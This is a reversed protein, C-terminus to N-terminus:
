DDDIGLMIKQHSKKLTSFLNMLEDKNENIAQFEMKGALSSLVPYGFNGGTGKLQHLIDSLNEWDNEQISQEIAKVTDALKHVYRKILDIAEPDEDLLSSVVPVEEMAEPIKAELYAGLTEFLKASDIPKTLFDDCGVQYCAERDEQMANATLAIIPKKFDKQRLIKVAELGGMIPMRMDMLVLDFDNKESEEIALKGNEAITVTLGMRKLYILLLEQNDVNDEALLINGSLSQTLIAQPKTQQLHPLHEKDFVKGAGELAEFTLLFTFKSGKGLESEVTLSGGLSEALLKSLSLGLGTGGFKRTTSSDAQTYAQFILDQQEPSIGIGSDVVEFKVEPDDENCNCSVNILVSGKETFKISNNCLNILIQKLRLPDNKIKEPLPFIYNISFGLGKEEAATRVLREVDTLIEFPSLEVSEIELKHAEVKSLDLIDNIIQLLHKGSRIITQIAKQRQVMTQESFLTTEAFGIMATLPTRIEHSMTALFESKIETAEEAKKFAIEMDDRAKQLQQNKDSVAKGVYRSIMFALGFAILGLFSIWFVSDDFMKRSFNVADVGKRKQFEVLQALTKLLVERYVDAENITKIVEEKSTGHLIMESARNNIPESKLAQQDLVIHLKKEENSMSFDHLAKRAESYTYAHHSFKQQMDDIEFVDHSVLMALMLIKRHLVSNHMAQAHDIKTEYEEVLDLVTENASKIQVLWIIALATMIFIIAVFGLHVTNKM